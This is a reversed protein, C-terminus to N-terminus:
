NYEPVNQFPFSSQQFESSITFVSIFTLLVQEAGSWALHTAVAAETGWNHMWSQCVRQQEDGWGPEETAQLDPMFNM